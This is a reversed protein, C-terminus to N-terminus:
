KLLLYRSGCYLCMGQHQVIPCWEGNIQRVQRYLVVTFGGALNPIDALTVLANDAVGGVAGPLSSTMVRTAHDNPSLAEQENCLVYHHQAVIFCGLRPSLLFTYNCAVERALLCSLGPDNSTWGRMSKYMDQYGANIEVQKATRGIIKAVTESGSYNTVSDLALEGETLGEESSVYLVSNREIYNNGTALNFNEHRGANEQNTFPNIFHNDTLNSNFTMNLTCNDMTLCQDTNPALLNMVLTNLGLLTYKEATSQKLQTSSSFQKSCTDVDNLTAEAM